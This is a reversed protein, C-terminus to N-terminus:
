LSASVSLSYTTGRGLTGRWRRKETGDTLEYDEAALDKATFKVEYRGFFKQKVALDILDRPEEYADLFETDGVSVLRRGIKNYLVSVTTGFTPEVFLLSANVMWPSQGQMPGQEREVTTGPLVFQDVRSWIKTYNGIVSMNSLLYSFPGLRDGVFDLSARAELEWGHNVAKPANYWTQAYHESAVWLREEIANRFDKYFYSFAVVEGPRPFVEIRADYNRILARDLNANGIVMRGRDYALFALNTLERFQPRDLSQSYALRLNTVDNLFYTLNASPLIDVKDIRSQIRSTPDARDEPGNVVLDSDEVRAGGVLRFRQGRVQFPHDAMAYYAHLDHRGDYVGTFETESEFLFMNSDASDAYNDPDFITELPEIRMKSNQGTSNHYNTWYATIDYDRETRTFHYGTKVRSRGIPIAVNADLGRTDENLFFWTRGNDALTLPQGPDWESKTVHKRDPQEADSVSYTTKWDVDARGVRHEGGIRHVRLLRQYWVIDQIEVPDTYSYHEGRYLSVKEQGTRNFSNNFSLKHQPSPKYSFDLLGGWLVNYKYRTGQYWMQYEVFEGSGATAPNYNPDVAGEFFDEVSYGDKYTLAGVYGIQQTGLVYRDGIALSYSGNLPADKQRAVWNNPLRQVLEYGTLDDGPFERTGDDYGLWDRDGSQSTFFANQTSLSNHSGSMSFSIVRDEPFDLTKLQVLGGTFDGPLDPTATKVVVTNALLKAPILDHSFSKKDMNTDTNTVSVGNLSTGNYRDTVGRVFVYKNDMLSLGTVRRLADGSTADPSRSIQEASIADGITAAKMRDALIAADTSLVREASVVLDEIEFAEGATTGISLDLKFKEDAKVEIDTVVKSNYGMCSVRIDYTGPPVNVLTYKGDLDTSAGLTTGVLLVNAGILEEGTHEDFITGYISGNQAFAFGVSLGLVVSACVLRLISNKVTTMM